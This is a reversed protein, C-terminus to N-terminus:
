YPNAVTEHSTQGNSVRVWLLEAFPLKPLRAATGGRISAYKTIGATEAFFGRPAQLNIPGTEGPLLTTVHRKRAPRGSSPSKSRDGQRVILATDADLPGLLDLWAYGRPQSSAGFLQVRKRTAMATVRYTSPPAKSTPPDDLIFSSGLVALWANVSYFGPYGYLSWRYGKSTTVPNALTYFNWCLRQEDTLAGWAGAIRQDLLTPPM